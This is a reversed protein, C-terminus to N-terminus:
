KKSKSIYKRLIEATHSVKGLVQTRAIRVHYANARPVLDFLINFYLRNAQFRIM